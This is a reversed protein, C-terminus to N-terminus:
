TTSRARPLPPHFKMIWGLAQAHSYVMNSAKLEETPCNSIRVLIDAASPIPEDVSPIIPTTPIKEIAAACWAMNAVKSLHEELRAKEKNTADLELKLKELEDQQGRIVALIKSREIDIAQLQTRFKGRLDKIVEHVLEQNDNELKEELDKVSQKLSDREDMIKILKALNMEGLEELRSSMDENIKEATTSRSTLAIKQEDAMTLIRELIDQRQTELSKGLVNLENTIRSNLESLRSNSVREQSIEMQSDSIQKKLSNNSATQKFLELRVVDIKKTLDVVTDKQEAIKILYDDKGEESGEESDEVGIVRGVIEGELQRIRAALKENQGALTKVTDDLSRERDKAEGLDRRLKAIEITFGFKLKKFTQNLEDVKETKVRLHNTLAINGTSLRSNQDQLTRISLTATDRTLSTPNLLQRM